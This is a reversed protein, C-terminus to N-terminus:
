GTDVELRDYGRVRHHRGIRGLEGRLGRHDLLWHLRFQREARWHRGLLPREPRIPRRDYGGLSMGATFLAPFVLISWISMGQAARGASIGLLGVETATDFGLGFLFGLPYMHWSRRIMCFMPRFVRALLGGGALLM